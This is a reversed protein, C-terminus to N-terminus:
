INKCIKGWRTKLKKEEEKIQNKRGSKSTPNM